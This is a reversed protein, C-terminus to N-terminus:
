SSLFIANLGLVVLGILVAWILFAFILSLWGRPPEEAKKEMSVAEEALGWYFWAWLIDFILWM